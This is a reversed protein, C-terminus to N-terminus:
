APEVASGIMLALRDALSAFEEEVITQHEQASVAHSANIHVEIGGLNISISRGSGGGGGSVNSSAADSVSGAAREVRGTGSEMGLAFGESTRAGMDVMVTSPSHIGLLDKISGLVSSGLQKAANVARGIGRVIGNVLGDVFDSAAQAAGNALNAFFTKVDEWHKVLQVIGYILLGLAAGIALFPWIAAIVGAATALASAALGWMAVTIAVVAGLAVGGVVGALMEFATRHHKIVLAVQLGIIILHLFASRIFEIVHAAARFVANFAGTIADKMVAGSPQAQDFISFFGQLAQTMPGTDISEFLRNISDKVKTTMTSLESMQAALAGKSKANVAKVMAEALQTGTLTGQKRALNIQQPTMGLQNLLEQESVGTGALMSASFRVKTGKVAAEHLSTLVTQLRLGGGEVMAEAGAIAKLSERLAGMDTVGAAELQRAWAGVQKESQPIETELQRLMNVVDMGAGEDAGKLSGLSTALRHLAEGSEIAMGVIKEGLEVVKEGIKELADKVVSAELVDGFIGKAEEKAEAAQRFQPPLAELAEGLVHYNAAAKRVATADGLAAARTAAAQASQMARQLVRAQEAATGMAAAAANAPVSVQDRLELGWVIAM